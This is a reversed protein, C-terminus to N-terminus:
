DTRHGNLEENRAIENCDICAESLPLYRGNDREIDVILQLIPYVQFPSVANGLQHIRHEDAKIDNSVWVRSIGKYSRNSVGYAARLIGPQSVRFTQLRSNIRNAVEECDSIRESWLKEFSPRTNGNSNPNIRAIIFIRSRLHAAGIAHAPYIVPWVEYHMRELETCLADLSINVFNTVNEGVIWTPKFLKIVRLMEKWLSRPDKDGRRSGIISFPQCPFGATFISVDMSENVQEKVINHIDGVIQVGPWNKALVKQCPIDNEIFLATKINGTWDAAVSFGGIGAFADIMYLPLYRGSSNHIPITTSM